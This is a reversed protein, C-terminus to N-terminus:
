ASWGNSTRDNNSEATSTPQSVAIAPTNVQEWAQRVQLLLDIQRRFMEESGKAHAELLKARVVSYFRALNEAAVGGQELNLLGELEQLVLFGHKLEAARKEIDRQEIAEIVSRVDAILMDYLIIVLGVTSANQIAAKRYALETQNRRM